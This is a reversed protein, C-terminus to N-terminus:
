KALDAIKEAVTRLEDEIAKHMGVTRGWLDEEFADLARAQAAEAEQRLQVRELLRTQILELAKSTGTDM